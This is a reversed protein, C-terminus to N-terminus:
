QRHQGNAAADIFKVFGNARLEHQVLFPELRAGFRELEDATLECGRLTCQFILRWTCTRAHMGDGSDVQMLYYAYGHRNLSHVPLTYLAFVNTGKEIIKRALKEEVQPYPLDGINGFELAKAYREKLDEGLRRSIPDEAKEEAAFAAPAFGAQDIGASCALLSALVAACRDLRFMAAATASPAPQETGSM